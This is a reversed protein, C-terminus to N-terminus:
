QEVAPQGYFAKATPKQLVILTFVGLATGFPLSLCNIVAMVLSFTRHKRQKICIGSYITLGGFLWGLLMFCGSFASMMLGIWVPPQQGPADGFFHPAAAMVLGFIFHFILFCSLLVHLGGLVYHMISLLKLHERDIIEQTSLPPNNPNPLDM